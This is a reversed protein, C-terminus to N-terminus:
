FEGLKDIILRIHERFLNIKEERSLQMITNPYRNDSGRLCFSPHLTALYWAKYQYKQNNEDYLDFFCNEWKGCAQTIGINSNRVYKHPKGGISVIIKPQLFDIQKKLWSRCAHIYSIDNPFVNNLPRCCLVNTVFVDDLSIGADIIAKKLIKGSAGVFPKGYETEEAGPAEGIFMIKATPSGACAVPKNYHERLNCNHCNQINKRITKLENIKSIVILKGRLLKM